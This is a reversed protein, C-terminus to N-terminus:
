KEKEKEKKPFLNSYDIVVAYLSKGKKTTKINKDVWKHLPHLVKFKRMLLSRLGEAVLKYDKLFHENTVDIGESTFEVLLKAAIDDCVHQIYIKNHQLKIREQTSPHINVGTRKVIELPFYLINNKKKGKKKDKDNNNDIKDVMM